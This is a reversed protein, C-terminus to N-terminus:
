YFWLKWQQQAHRKQQAEKSSDKLMDQLGGNCSLCGANCAVALHMPVSPVGRRCPNPTTARVQYVAAPPRTGTRQEMRRGYLEESQQALMYPHYKPRVDVWDRAKDLVMFGWRYCLDSSFVCWCVYHPPNSAATAVQWAACELRFEAACAGALAPALTPPLGTPARTCTCEEWGCPGAVRPPTLSRQTAATRRRTSTPCRARESGLQGVVTLLSVLSDLPPARKKGVGVAGTRNRLAGQREAGLDVRPSNLSLLEGGRCGGCRARESAAVARPPRGASQNRRAIDSPVAPHRRAAAGLRGLILCGSRGVRPGLRM